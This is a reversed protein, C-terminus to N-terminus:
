YSLIVLLRRIASSRWWLVTVSIKRATQYPNTLGFNRIAIRLTLSTQGYWNAIHYVAIAIVFLIKGTNKQRYLDHIIKRLQDNNLFRLM